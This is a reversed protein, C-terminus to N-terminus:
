VSETPSGTTVRQGGSSVGHNVAAIRSHLMMTAAAARSTANPNQSKRERRPVVFKAYRDRKRPRLADPRTPKRSGGPVSAQPPGSEPKRPRRLTGVVPTNSPPDSAPFSEELAEDIESDSDNDIRAPTRPIM